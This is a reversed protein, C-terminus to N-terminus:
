PLRIITEPVELITQVSEGIKIEGGSVVRCSVGGRWEGSLAKRLGAQANEMQQCPSTQERVEVVVSGIAIQSGRGRPLKIGSSLVNARRVTWDLDVDGVLTLAMRWDEVALITIQREPFKSGKCDGVMGFQVTVSAAELKEMPARSKDRRAIGLVKGM